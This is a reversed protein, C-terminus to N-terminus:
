EEAQQSCTLKEGDSVITVTGDCTYYADTRHKQLSEVTSPDAYEKKSCCVVATKPQLADLFAETGSLYNGHYPFKLFSVFGLNLSVIEQMRANEADGAFLFTNKGHQMFLCLSFDNEEDKGYFTENPAYLTFAADDDRWIVNERMPIATIELNKEEAKEIFNKYEDIESEYNPTYIKGINLTNLLKGAGGVHDKDFHTIILTDITDIGQKELYKTIVKGDGKNGADIVTVHEATQIVMADAKGVDFVTLTVDHEAVTGHADSVSGQQSEQCATVSVLILASLILSAAKKLFM